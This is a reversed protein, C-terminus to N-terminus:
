FHHKVFTMQDYLQRNFQRNFQRNSQRNCQRNCQRNGIILGRHPAGIAGGAVEMVLASGLLRDMVKASGGRVKAIAGRVWELRFSYPGLSELRFSLPWYAATIGCPFLMPLEIAFKIFMPLMCIHDFM